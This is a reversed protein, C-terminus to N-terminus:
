QNGRGAILRLIDSLSVVGAVRGAADSLFIRHVRREVLMSLVEGFPTQLTCAALAPRRTRQEPSRIGFEAALGGRPSSGMSGVPATAAAAHLFRPSSATGGAVCGGGTLFEAVEEAGLQIFHKPLMGRIDSISFAGQLVGEDLNNVVAVAATCPYLAPTPTPPPPFPPSTPALPAGGARCSVGLLRGWEEQM